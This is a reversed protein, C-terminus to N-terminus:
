GGPDAVASLVARFPGFGSAGTLAAADEARVAIVVVADSPAASTGLWTSQTGGEEARALVLAGSTVLTADDVRGGTDAAALYLDVRDGVRLLDALMADALSVPVVVWGPPAADALGPGLLMTDVVPVGAPLGVTLTAGVVDTVELSGEPSSEAAVLRVDEPTLVTGAPLQRSAVLVPVSPPTPPRLEAVVIWAACGLCLAVVLWRYRWLLPRLRRTM